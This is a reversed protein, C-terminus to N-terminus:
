PQFYPTQAIGIVKGTSDLLRGIAQVSRYPLGVFIMESARTGFGDRASGLGDSSVITARVRRNGTDDAAITWASQCRPSYRLAAVVKGPDRAFQVIYSDTSCGELIPDKFTCTSEGPNALCGGPNTPPPYPLGVDGRLAETAQEEPTGDVEPDACHCLGFIAILSMAIRFVSTPHNM